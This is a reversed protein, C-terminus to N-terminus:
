KHDSQKHQCLKKTPKRINLCKEPEGADGRWSPCSCKSCAGIGDVANKQGSNNEPGCSFITLLFFTFFLQKM